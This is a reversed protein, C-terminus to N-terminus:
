SIKSEIIELIDKKAAEKKSIYEAIIYLLKIPKYMIKLGDRMYYGNLINQIQQRSQGTLKMLVLVDGHEINEKIKNAIAMYKDYPVGSELNIKM